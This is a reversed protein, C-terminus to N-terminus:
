EIEFSKNKLDKTCKIFQYDVQFFAKRWDDKDWKDIDLKPKPKEVLSKRFKQTMKLEYVKARDFTIDLLATIEDKPLSEWPNFSVSATVDSQQMEGSKDM